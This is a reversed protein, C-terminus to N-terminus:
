YFINYSWDLGTYPWYRSTYLPFTPMGLLDHDARATHYSQECRADTNCLTCNPIAGLNTFAARLNRKRKECYSKISYQDSITYTSYNQKMVKVLALRPAPCLRTVTFAIPQPNSIKMEKSQHQPLDLRKTGGSLM